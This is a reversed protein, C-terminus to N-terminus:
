AANANFGSGLRNAIEPKHAELRGKSSTTRAAFCSECWGYLIGNIMHYAVTESDSVQQHCQKCEWMVPQKFSIEQFM